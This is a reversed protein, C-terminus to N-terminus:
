QPSSPFLASDIPLGVARLLDLRAMLVDAAARLAAIRIEVRLRQADLLEFLPIAGERYATVAITAVATGRVDIDYMGTRDVGVASAYESLLTTYSRFAGTVEADVATEVARLEGTAVIVDGHARERNGSNRDFLPLSVGVQMTGTQFGSTRKSGVQVGLAPLSGLREALQRKTMEQVRSRASLLESRRSRALTLLDRLPSVAPAADVRVQDTPAPVSDVPVALARALDARARELEARAAADSLRARDVELRARLAAGASVAGQAAREAEIGAITDLRARQDAAAQRLAAALATRWYARAVEFEISRATTSSDSVARTAALGSASRLAVRRGYVDVPLTASLFEDRPLPSGYNEKRWEFLPNLFAGEQRASGTAVQRRGGAASLLPHQRRALAAADALSFAGPRASPVTAAASQALAAHTPLWGTAAMPLVRSWRTFVQGATRM